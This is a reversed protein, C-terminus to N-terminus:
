GRELHRPLLTEEIWLHALQEADTRQHLWVWGGNSGSVLYVSWGEGLHSRLALMIARAEREDARYAVLLDDM